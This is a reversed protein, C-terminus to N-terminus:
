IKLMPSILLSMSPAPSGCMFGVFFRSLNFLNLFLGKFAMKKKIAVMLISIIHCNFFLTRNCKCLFIETATM